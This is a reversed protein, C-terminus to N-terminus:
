MLLMISITTREGKLRQEEEGELRWVVYGLTEEIARPQRAGLFLM